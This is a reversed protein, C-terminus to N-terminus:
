EYLELWTLVSVQFIGTYFDYCSFSATQFDWSIIQELFSYKGYASIKGKILCGFM